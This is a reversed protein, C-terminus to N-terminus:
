SSANIVLKTVENWSKETIEESNEFNSASTAIKMESFSELREVKISEM